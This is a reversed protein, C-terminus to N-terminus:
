SRVYPQFGSYRWDRLALLLTYGHRNDLPLRSDEQNLVDFDRAVRELKRRLEANSTDSLMGNMVILQHDDADFRTAFFDKQIVSLFVTEIPGNPLWGFNAAVLVKIRNGPLLEILRLRDLTALQQVLEHEDFVYFDLIEDFSWKNLVCVTVLLLGLDDAIQVEQDAALHQLRGQNQEMAKVLGTIETGALTCSRDLESLSFDQRSFKRKVSSESRDLCTAVQAYTIASAKLVRKLTDVVATVQAM